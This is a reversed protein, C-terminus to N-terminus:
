GMAMEARLKELEAEEDEEEQVKSKGKPEGNAAAPLRNLQDAVPVTGTHLMREDMAEQELGELEADLETEDAQDGIQTNTIAQAIEESLQHQERLQDMTEDVKDITLNGHIQTMAAGAQKMANLTEQNINAAEISYIQQELQIIQATTQELNKEHVKKRRLASKAANKNTTVNKRAVADQEEMLNELHKERKQLMDLQERLKLIADKPADKRKQAASGGFWSWM